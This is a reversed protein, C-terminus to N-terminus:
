EQLTTDSSSLEDTYSNFPRESFIEVSGCQRIRVTAWSASLTIVRSSRIVWIYPISSKPMTAQSSNRRWLVVLCPHPDRQLRGPYLRPRSCKIPGNRPVPRTNKCDCHYHSLRAAAASSCYIVLAAESLASRYCQGCGFLAYIDTQKTGGSTTMHIHSPHPQWCHRRLLVQQRAEPSLRLWEFTVGANGV